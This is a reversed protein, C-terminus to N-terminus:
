RFAQNSRRALSNAPKQSLTSELSGCKAKSTIFTLPSSRITQKVLCLLPAFGLGIMIILPSLIYKELSKMYRNSGKEWKEGTEYKEVSEFCRDCKKRRKQAAKKKWTKGRKQNSIETTWVM